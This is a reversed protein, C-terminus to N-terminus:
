KISTTTTIVSDLVNVEAGNSVLYQMIDFRGITAAISLATM